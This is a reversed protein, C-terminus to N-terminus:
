RPEFGARSVNYYIGVEGSSSVVCVANDLEQVAAGRNGLVAARVPGAYVVVSAPSSDMELEPARGMAPLITWIHHAEALDVSATVAGQLGCENVAPDASLGFGVAATGGALLGAAASALLLLGITRNM